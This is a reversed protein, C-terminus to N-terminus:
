LLRWVLSPARFGCLGREAPPKPVRPEAGAAADFDRAASGGHAAPAAAAERIRHNAVQEEAM